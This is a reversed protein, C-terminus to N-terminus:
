SSAFCQLQSRYGSLCRARFLVCVCVCLCVCVCVYLRLCLRMCVCACICVCECECTCVSVRLYPSLFLLCASPYLCKGCVRACTRVFFFLFAM